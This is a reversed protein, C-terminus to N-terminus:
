GRRNSSGVTEMVVSVSSVPLGDSPVCVVGDEYTVGPGRSLPERGAHSGSVRKAPLNNLLDRAVVLEHTDSAGNYNHVFRLLHVRPAHPLQFGGDPLLVPFGNQGGAWDAFGTCKLFNRFTKQKTPPLLILPRHPM